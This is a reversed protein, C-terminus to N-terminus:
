KKKHMANRFGCITWIVGIEAIIAALGTALNLDGKDMMGVTTIIAGVGILVAGRKTKSKYWPDSM